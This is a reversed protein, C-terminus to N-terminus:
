KEKAISWLFQDFVRMRFWEEGFIPDITKLSNKTVIEEIRIKNQKYKDSWKECYLEYDYKWVKLVGMNNRDMIITNRKRLWLFKSAASIANGKSLFGKVEFYDSLKRVYNGEFDNFALVDALIEEDNGNKFNRGVSMYSNKFTIFLNLKDASDTEIAQLLEHENDYHNVFYRMVDIYQIQKM